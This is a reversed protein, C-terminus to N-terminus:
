ASCWTASRRAAAPSSTPTWRWGTIASMGVPQQVETQGDVTWHRAITHIVEQNEPLAVAGAGELARQMDGGTVGHSAQGGPQRGQQQAHRHPQRCHRCLCSLMQRGAEKECAEM